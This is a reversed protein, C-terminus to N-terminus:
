SQNDVESDNGSPMSEEDAFPSSYNANLQQFLDFTSVTKYRDSDDDMKGLPRGEPTYSSSVFSGDQLRSYVTCFEPLGFNSIMNAMVIAESEAAISADDDLDFKSESYRYITLHDAANAIPEGICRANAQQIEEDAAFAIHYPGIVVFTGAMAQAPSVSRSGMQVLEWNALLNAPIKGFFQLSPVENVSLLANKEIGGPLSELHGVLDVGRTDWGQEPDGTPMLAKRMEVEVLAGIEKLEESMKSQMIQWFEALSVPSETAGNETVEGEFAEWAPEPIGAAIACTSAVLMLVPLFARLM